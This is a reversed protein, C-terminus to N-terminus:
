EVVSLGLERLASLAVGGDFAQVAAFEDTVNAIEVRLAFRMRKLYETLSDAHGEDVLLWAREGDDVFRIAQEIRGQQNLLLTEVSEGPKLGVLQQSTMSNLWSLRDPGAVTVVGRHSLSVVANGEALARQEALPAGFHSPAGETAIAGPLAVFPDGSM